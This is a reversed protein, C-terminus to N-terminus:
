KGYLTFSKNDKIVEDFPSEGALIVVRTHAGCSITPYVNTWIDEIVSKPQAAFEDMFIMKFGWGRMATSKYGCAVIGSGNELQFRTASKASAVPKMSAPLANYIRKVAALHKQHNGLMLVNFKEHFTMQSVIYHVVTEYADVGSDISVFRNATIHYLVQNNVKHLHDLYENTM